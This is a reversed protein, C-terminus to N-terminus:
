SPYPEGPRVIRIRHDTFKFHAEPLDIKPMHCRVCGTAAKPCIRVPQRGAAHCGQCKADYFEATREVERHPDHCAICSM